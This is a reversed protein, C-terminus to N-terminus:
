VLVDQIDTLKHVLVWATSKGEFLINATVDTFVEVTAITDIAIKTFCFRSLTM